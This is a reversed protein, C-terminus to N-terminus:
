GGRTFTYIASTNVGTFDRLILWHHVDPAWINPQNYLNQTTQVFDTKKNTQQFPIQSKHHLFGCSKVTIWTSRGMLEEHVIFSKLFTHVDKSLWWCCCSDLCEFSHNFSVFLSYHHFACLEIILTQTYKVYKIGSDIQQVYDVGAMLLKIHLLAHFSHRNENLMVM